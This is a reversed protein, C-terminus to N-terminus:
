KNLHLIICPRFVLVDSKVVPVKSTRCVKALMALHQNQVIATRYTALGGEELSPFLYYLHVSCFSLVYIFICWLMSDTASLWLFPSHLLCWSFLVLSFRKVSLRQFNFLFCLRDSDALVLVADSVWVKVHIETLLNRQFRTVVFDQVSSLAFRGSVWVGPRSVYKEKAQAPFGQALCCHLCTQEECTWVPVPFSRLPAFTAPQATCILRFPSILFTYSSPPLGCLFVLDRPKNLGITDLSLLRLPCGGPSVLAKLLLYSSFLISIVWCLELFLM